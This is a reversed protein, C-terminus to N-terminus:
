VLVISLGCFRTGDSPGAREKSSGSTGHLLMIQIKPTIGVCCWCQDPLTRRPGGRGEPESEAGYCCSRKFSLVSGAWVRGSSGCEVLADVLHSCSNSTSGLCTVCMACCFSIYNSNLAQMGRNSELRLQVCKLIPNPPARTGWGCM